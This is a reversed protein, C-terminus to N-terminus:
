ADPKEAPPPLAGELHRRANVVIRVGNFVQKAMEARVRADDITIKGARLDRLDSALGNIVDELSFREALPSTEDRSPRIDAM